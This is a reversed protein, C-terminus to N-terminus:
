PLKSKCVSQDVSKKTTYIQKITNCGQRVSKYVHGIGLTNGIRFAGSHDSGSLKTLEINGVWLSFTERYSDQEGM